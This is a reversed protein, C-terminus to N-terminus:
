ASALLGIARAREAPNSISRLKAAQKLVREKSAKSMDPVNVARAENTRGALNLVIIYNIFHRRQALPSQTVGRMTTAGADAENSLAEALALNTQADLNGPELTVAKRFAAKAEDSRGALVLATGLKNYAAVTGVAEAAPALTRVAAEAEGNRLQATGLGLMAQPQNPSKQLAARFAEEAGKLDDAKLRAEGLRISVSPDSSMEAAREYLAMATTSDGRTEVDRAIKMLRSPDNGPKEATETTTGTTTCASLSAAAVAVALHGFRRIKM